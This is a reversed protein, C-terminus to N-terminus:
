IINYEATITHIGVALSSITLTSEYTNIAVYSPIGPVGANTGDIKFQVMGSLTTYSTMSATFTVSEGYVTTNTPSSSSVSITILTQAQAATAFAILICIVTLIKIIKKM